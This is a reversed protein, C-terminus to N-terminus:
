KKEVRTIMYDNETELLRILLEESLDKMYIVSAWAASLQESIQTVTLPKNGTAVLLRFIAETLPTGPLLYDPRQSCDSKIQAMLYKLDSSLEPQEDIVQGSRDIKLFANVITEGPGANLSPQYSRPWVGWAILLGAAAGGGVLLTRRDIGKSRDSVTRPPRAM